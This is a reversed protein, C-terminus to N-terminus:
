KWRFEEKKSAIEVKGYFVRTKNKWRDPIGQYTQQKGM